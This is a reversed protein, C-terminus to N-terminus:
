RQVERVRSPCPELMQRGTLDVVLIVQHAREHPVELALVHARLVGPVQPRAGLLGALREPVEYPAEGLVAGLERTYSLGLDHMGEKLTHGASVKHALKPSARWDVGVLQEVDGGTESRALLRHPGDEVALFALSHIIRRRLTSFGFLGLLFVLPALLALLRTALRARLPVVVPVLGECNVRGL